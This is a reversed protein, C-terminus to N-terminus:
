QLTFQNVILPTGRSISKVYVVNVIGEGLEVEINRASYPTSVTIRRNEPTAFSCLQFEKPLTHWSRLDAQNTAIQYVIGGVRILAGAFGADKTAETLAYQATAKTATAALTKAIVVPMENRFEQAVISDMSALRVTQHNGENTLVTLRPEHRARFRMDPFAAGIYPVDRSFGWLPLDIRVEDRTPGRGTEFLVYTTPSMRGGQLRDHIRDIDERIYDTDRIMGAVRELSVRARELDSADSWPHGLFYLGDLYVALPNVYDAYYALDQLHAYREDLQRQLSTDSITRNVDIGDDGVQEGAEERAQEIRRANRQVADQQRQYARNLEVRANEPEGLALYNLAKYTHLMIRDYAYGEYPLANLNTVAAAAAVGVRVQAREEYESIRVAADEFARNSEEFEGAARLAAGQELLWLVRDRSGRKREAASTAIRAARDVNASEWASNLSSSQRSYSACGGALLSLVFLAFAIGRAAVPGFRSATVGSKRFHVSDSGM